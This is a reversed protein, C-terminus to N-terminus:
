EKKLKGHIYECQGEVNGDKDMVTFMGHRKDNVWEGEYKKGDPMEEIGKVRWGRFFTGTFITLGGKGYKM